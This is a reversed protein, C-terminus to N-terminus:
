GKVLISSGINRRGLLRLRWGPIYGISFVVLTMFENSSFQKKVLVAIPSYYFLPQGTLSAANSL